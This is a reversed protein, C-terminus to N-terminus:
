EWSQEGWSVVEERLPKYCAVFRLLLATSSLM